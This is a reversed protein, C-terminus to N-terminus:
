TITLPSAGSTPGTICTFQKRSGPTMAAPTVSTVNFVAGTLVGYPDIDQASVGNGGTVGVLVSVNVTEIILPPGPKVTLGVPAALKQSIVVDPAVISM